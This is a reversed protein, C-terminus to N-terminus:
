ARLLENRFTVPRPNSDGRRWHRSNTYAAKLLCSVTKQIPLFEETPVCLACNQQEHDIVSSDVNTKQGLSVWVVFYATDVNSARCPASSPSSAKPLFSRFGSGSGVACYGGPVRPISRHFAKLVQARERVNGGTSGGGLRLAGAWSSACSVRCSWRWRQQSAVHEDVSILYDPFLARLYGAPAQIICRASHYDARGLRM